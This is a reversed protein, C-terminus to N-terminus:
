PERELSWQRSALSTRRLRAGIGHADEAYADCQHLSPRSNVDSTSLCPQRRPELALRTALVKLYANRDAFVIAQLFPRWLAALAAGLLYQNPGDALSTLEM